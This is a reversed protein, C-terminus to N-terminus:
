LYKKTWEAIIIGLGGAGIDAWTDGKAFWCLPCSRSWDLIEWIELGLILVISWYWKIGSFRQLILFILFHGVWSGPDTDFFEIM